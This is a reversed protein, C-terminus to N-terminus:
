GDKLSELQRRKIFAIVQRAYQEPYHEFINHGCRPFVVLEGKPLNRYFAVGQEVEFNVRDNALVGPFKKTINKMSLMTAM